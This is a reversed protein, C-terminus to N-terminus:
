PLRDLCTTGRQWAWCGMPQRNAWADRHEEIWDVPEGRRELLLWRVGYRQYTDGRNVEGQAIITVVPARMALTSAFWGHVVAGPPLLQVMEEQIQPLRYTAIAQWRQFHSAGALTVAVVIAGTLVRRAGARAVSALLLSAGVATLIALPPLLPVTYRNPRYTVVLLVLIGMVAWGVAAAVLVRQQPDLSRRQRWAVAGGLLAGILLTANRTTAQDNGGSLYQWARAVLVDPPALANTEPWPRLAAPISIGALTVGTAWAIGAVVVVAVAVAARGGLQPRLAGGALLAGAVIGAIPAAASPKTGLAVAMALGALAGPLWTRGGPALLLALAAVLAAMVTAELLALRGYFLVLPATGLALAALVGATTGYRRGVIVGIVAVAAVTALVSVLRAQIIGVGFLQFSVYAAANFPLQAIVLQWEDTIWRGLLVANRAGLVSWGEDTFPSDSGTMEINPDLPLQVALLVAIGLTVAAVAPLLWRDRGAPAVAAPLPGTM